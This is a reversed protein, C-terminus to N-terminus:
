TLLIAQFSKRNRQCTPLTYHQMTAAPEPSLTQASLLERFPQRAFYGRKGFSRKTQLPRLSFTQYAFLQSNNSNLFKKTNFKIQVYKSPKIRIEIRIVHTFNHLSQKRLIPKLYPRRRDPWQDWGCAVGVNDWEIM